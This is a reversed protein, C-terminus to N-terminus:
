SAHILYAVSRNTKIAIKQLAVDSKFRAPLYSWVFGNLSLLTKLFSYNHRLEEHAFELVHWCSRQASLIIHEDMRLKDSAFRVSLGYNSVAALVVDYDSQLRASAYCLAHGHNRVALLVISKKDRLRPSAYELSCGHHTVAKKVVRTTDKTLESAYVLINKFKNLDEFISSPSKDNYETNWSANTRSVNATIRGKVM